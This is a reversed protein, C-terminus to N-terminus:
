ENTRNYNPRDPLPLTLTAKIFETGRNIREVVEERGLLAMTHFLSPGGGKGTVTLRLGIMGTGFPYGGEEMFAKFAEELPQPSFDPLNQLVSAFGKLIQETEPKWKKRVTEEDYADPALLFFRSENILQDVSAVRERM